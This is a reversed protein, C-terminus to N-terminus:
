ALWKQLFTVAEKYLQNTKDVPSTTMESELVFAAWPFQPDEAFGSGLMFMLTSIVALGRESSMNNSHALLTAEQILRSIVPNSLNKAKQPWINMLFTSIRPLADQTQDDSFDDFSADRLRILARDLYENQKGAMEDLIEVGTDYLKEAREIPDPISEDTLIHKAWPYQLDEDFHSGLLLMLDIFLPTDRKTEFGYDEARKVGYSTVERIVPGGHVEYYKPFFEKIHKVMDDEFNRLAAQEFVAMQEKRIILM